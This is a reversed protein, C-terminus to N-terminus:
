ARKASQILETLLSKMRDTLEAPTIGAKMCVMGIDLAFVEKSIKNDRFEFEFFAPLEIRSCNGGPMNPTLSVVGTALMVTDNFAYQNISASYDPFIKFFLDLQQGVEVRGKGYSASGPAILEIDPHYIDLAAATDQQGKVRTLEVVLGYMKTENEM